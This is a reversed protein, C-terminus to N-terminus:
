APIEAPHSFFHPMETAENTPPMSVIKTNWRPSGWTLQIM